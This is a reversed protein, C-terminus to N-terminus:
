AEELGELLRVVMMKQDMDIKRVVDDIAPLLIEKGKGRCVYVDNSGTPFVSEIKGLARGEETVVSLGIIDHWYYEGDPLKKWKELPIWVSSGVLRSAADRDEIGGLKLIFSERGTQVSVLPFMAADQVKTGVWVEKLDGLTDQSELYSLVKMRGALGHSRIIRGIELLEM